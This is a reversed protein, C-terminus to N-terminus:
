KELNVLATIVYRINPKLLTDKVLYDGVQTESSLKKHYKRNFYLSHGIFSERMISTLSVYLKLNCKSCDKSYGLQPIEMVFGSLLNDGTRNWLIRLSDRLKKPVFQYIEECQSFYFTKGDKNYMSYSGDDMKFPKFEPQLRYPMISDCHQLLFVGLDEIEKQRQIVKSMFKEKKFQKKIKLVTEKQSTNIIWKETYLFKILLAINFLIIYALIWWRYKFFTHLFKM